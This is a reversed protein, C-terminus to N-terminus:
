IVGAGGLLLLGWLVSVIAIYVVTLAGAGLGDLVFDSSRTGDHSVASSVTRTKRQADFWAQWYEWIEWPNNVYAWAYAGHLTWAWSRGKIVGALAGILAGGVGWMLYSLQMIPGFIVHQLVHTGEHWLLGKSPHGTLTITAGQSFGFGPQVKFGDEYAHMFTHRCPEYLKGGGAYFVWTAIHMMSGITTGLLGWSTTIPIVLWGLAPHLTRWAGSVAGQFGGIAACTIGMANLYSAYSASFDESGPVMHAFVAATVVATCLGGFLVAGLIRWGVGRTGHWVGLVGGALIILALVWLIVEMGKVGLLEGFVTGGVSGFYAGFGAYVTTLVANLVVKGTNSDSENMRVVIGMILGAVAALGIVLGVAGSPVFAAALDFCEGFYNDAGFRETPTCFHSLDHLM